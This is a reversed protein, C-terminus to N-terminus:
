NLHLRFEQALTNLNNNLSSLLEFKERDTYATKKISGEKISVEM